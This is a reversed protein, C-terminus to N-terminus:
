QRLERLLGNKMSLRIIFKVEMKTQEGPKVFWLKKSQWVGMNGHNPQIGPPKTKIFARSFGFWGSILHRLNCYRQRKGNAITM